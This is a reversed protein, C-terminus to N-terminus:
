ASSKTMNGCIEECSSKNVGSASLTCRNDLCKYKADDKCIDQCTKLPVGPEGEKAPVCKGLMCVYHDGAPPESSKCRLISTKWLDASSGDYCHDATLNRVQDPAGSCDDVNRWVEEQYKAGEKCDSPGTFIRAFGQSKVECLGVRQTFYSENTGKSGCTPYATEDWSTVSIVTEANVVVAHTLTFLFAFALTAAM